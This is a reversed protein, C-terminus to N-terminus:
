KKAAADINEKTASEVLDEIPDAILLDWRNETNQLRVLARDRHHTARGPQPNECLYDRKPFWINGSTASTPMIWFRNEDVGWLVFYDARGVYSKEKSPWNQRRIPDWKTSRNDFCYGLYRGRSFVRLTAAKVQIRIGNDLLLDYGHDVGPFAPIIGQLALQSAVAWVGAQGLIRTAGCPNKGSKLGKIFENRTM